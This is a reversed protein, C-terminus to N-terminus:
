LANVPTKTVTTTTTATFDRDHEAKTMSHIDSLVNTIREMTNIMNKQFEQTAPDRNQLIELYEKNQKEKEKLQGEISGIKANLQEFKEGNIRDKEAMTSKYEEAQTKWFVTLSNSGTRWQSVFYGLGGTFVGLGVILTM